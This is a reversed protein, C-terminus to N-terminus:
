FGVACHRRRVNEFYSRLPVRRLYFNLAQLKGTIDPNSTIIEFILCMKPKENKRDNFVKFIGYKNFINM